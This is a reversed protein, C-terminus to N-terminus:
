LETLEFMKDLAFKADISIEKVTKGALNNNLNISFVELDPLEPM